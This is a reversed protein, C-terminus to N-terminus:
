DVVINGHRIMAHRVMHGKQFSKYPCVPCQFQAEKGCEYKQHKGLSAKHKYKRGCASCHFLASDRDRGADM